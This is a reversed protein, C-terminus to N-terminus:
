KQNEKNLYNTKSVKIEEYEDDSSIRREKVEILSKKIDKKLSKFKRIEKLEWRKLYEDDSDEM